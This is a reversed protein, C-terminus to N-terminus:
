FKLSFHTPILIYKINQNRSMKTMAGVEKAKTFTYVLYNIFINKKSKKFVYKATKYLRIDFGPLEFM